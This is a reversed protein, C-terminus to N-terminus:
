ADDEEEQEPASGPPLLFGGQPRLALTREDIRRLEIEYLSTALISVVRPLPRGVALNYLELSGPAAVSM